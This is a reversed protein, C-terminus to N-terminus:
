ALAVGGLISSLEGEDLGQSIIEKATSMDEPYNKVALIDGTVPAVEALTQRDADIEEKTRTENRSSLISPANLGMSAMQERAMDSPTPMDTEADAAVYDIEPNVTAM